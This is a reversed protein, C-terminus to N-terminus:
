LTLTDNNLGKLHHIKEACFGHEVEVFISLDDDREM